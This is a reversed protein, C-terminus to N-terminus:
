YKSQCKQKLKQLEDQLEKNQAKYFTCNSCSGTEFEVMIDSDNASESCDYSHRIAGGVVHSLSLDANDDANESLLEMFLPAGAAGTWNSRIRSANPHPTVDSPTQTVNVIPTLQANSIPTRQVNDAIPTLQTNTITTRQVNYM